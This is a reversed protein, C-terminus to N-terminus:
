RNLLISANARTPELYEFAANRTDCLRSVAIRQTMDIELRLKEVKQLSAIILSSELGTLGPRFHLNFIKKRPVRVKFEPYILERRASPFFNLLQISATFHSYEHRPVKFHLEFSFVFSTVPTAALCHRLQRPYKPSVLIRSNCCQKGLPLSGGEM